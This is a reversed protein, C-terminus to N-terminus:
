RFSIEEGRYDEDIIGNNYVIIGNCITQMIQWNFVHGIM